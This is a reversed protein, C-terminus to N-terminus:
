KRSTIIYSMVYLGRAWQEMRPSWVQRPLKILHGKRRLGIGIEEDEDFGLEGLEDATAGYGSPLHGDDTLLQLGQEFLTMEEQNFPCQGSPVPVADHRINSDIM